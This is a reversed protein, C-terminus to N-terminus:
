KRAMLPALPTNPQCNQFEHCGKVKQEINYDLGPWWVFMIALRKMQTEGPHAEHLKRPMDGRGKPIVVRNGWFICGDQVFLEDKM